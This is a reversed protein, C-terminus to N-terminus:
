LCTQPANLQTLFVPLDSLSALQHQPQADPDDVPQQHVGLERIVQISAMGLQNPGIFDKKLNDGVYVM